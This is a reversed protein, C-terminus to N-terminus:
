LLYIYVDEMHQLQTLGINPKILINLLISAFMVISKEKELHLGILELKSRWADINDWMNWSWIYRDMPESNRIRRMDTIVSELEALPEM